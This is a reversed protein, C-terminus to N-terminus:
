IAGADHNAKEREGSNRFCQFTIYYDDNSYIETYSHPEFGYHMNCAKRIEEDLKGNARLIKVHTISFDVRFIKATKDM